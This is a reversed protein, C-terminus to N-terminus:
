VDYMCGYMCSDCCGIYPLHTTGARLATAVAVACDGAFARLAEELGARDREADRLSESVDVQIAQGVCVSVSVCLCRPASQLLSRPHTYPVPRGGEAAPKQAPELLQQPVRRHQGTDRSCRVQGGAVGLGSVDAGAPPVRRHVASALVAARELRDPQAAMCESGHSYLLIDGDVCVYM